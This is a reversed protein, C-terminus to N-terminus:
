AAIKEEFRIASAVLAPEIEYWFSIEEITKKKKYLGYILSTDINVSTLVPKGFNITPDIMVSRDGGLPHWRQALDSSSYELGEILYPKLIEDLEYQSNVLNLLEAEDESTAIRSLISKRDTYFTRTSFPHDKGLISQAKEAAVRIAKWSVGHKHFADIFRIEIMDLFSLAISSGIQDFDHSYLSKHGKKERGVYGRTWRSIKRADIGTYRSVQAITYIGKGIYNYDMM